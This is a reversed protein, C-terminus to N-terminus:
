KIKFVVGPLIRDPRMEINEMVSLLGLKGLDWGDSYLSEKGYHEACKRIRCAEEGKWIMGNYGRSNRSILM